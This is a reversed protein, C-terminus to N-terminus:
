EGGTCAPRAGDKTGQEGGSPFLQQVLRMMVSCGKNQTYLADIEPSTPARFQAGPTPMASMHQGGWVSYFVSAGPCAITPQKGNEGDSGTVGDTGDLSLLPGLCCGITLVAPLLRSAAM